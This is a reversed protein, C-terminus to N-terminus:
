SEEPQQLPVHQTNDYNRNRLTLTAKMKKIEEDYLKVEGQLRDKEEREEILLGDLEEAKERWFIVRARLQEEQLLWEQRRNEADLTTQAVERILRSVSEGLAIDDRVILSRTEADIKRVEAPGHKRRLWATLWAGLGGGGLFTAILIYLWQALTHPYSSSDPQLM